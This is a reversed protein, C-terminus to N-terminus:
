LGVQEGEVLHLRGGAVDAEGAEAQVIWEVARVVVVLDAGEEAGAIEARHRLILAVPKRRAAQRDLGGIGGALLERQERVKQSSRGALPLSAITTCASSSLWLAAAANRKVMRGPWSVTNSVSIASYGRASM